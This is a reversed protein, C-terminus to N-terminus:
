HLPHGTLTGASLNSNGMGGDSSRRGATRFPAYVAPLCGRRPISSRNCKTQLVAHFPGPQRVYPLLNHNDAQTPVGLLSHTDISSPSFL